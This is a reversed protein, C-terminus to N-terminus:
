LELRDNAGRAANILSDISCRHTKISQALDVLAQPDVGAGSKDCPPEQHRLVPNIRQILRSLQADLEAIASELHNMEQEVESQKVAECANEM